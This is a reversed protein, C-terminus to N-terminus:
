RRRAILWLVIIFIGFMLIGKSGLIGFTAGGSFMLILLYVFVMGGFLKVLGWVLGQGRNNMIM